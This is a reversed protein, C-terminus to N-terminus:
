ITTNSARLINEFDLDTLELFTRPGSDKEVIGFNYLEELTVKRLLPKLYLLKIVRNYKPYMELLAKSNFISRNQCLEILEQSSKAIILEDIIAISTVVSSFKKPYKDGKRYILVIDGPKAVSFRAASIYVKQLAYRHAFNENYSDVNENKLISDPFLDTHYIAEIPIIFKKAQLNFLPFNEIPKALKNYLKVTKVLVLEKGNRTEKIGHYKFGWREFLSKLNKTDASDDFLTVYIEDVKYKLANDFIIQLFREGLRFGTPVVKFTGIKMRTGPKFTPKIDEYLEDYYEQKIYLFGVVKDDVRSVYAEKDWRQNYWQPFEKYAKKFSDFFTDSLSVNAFLMRKVYLMKYDVSSPFYQNAYQLFNEINFVRSIIGLKKAKELM